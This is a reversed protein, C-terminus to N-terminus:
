LEAILITIRVIRSGEVVVVVMVMLIEEMAEVPSFKISEPVAFIADPLAKELTERKLKMFVVIVLELPNIPNILIKPLSLPSM